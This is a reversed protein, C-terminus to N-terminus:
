WGKWDVSMELIARLQHVVYAVPADPRVHGNWIQPFLVVQGGATVFEQCNTLSDDILV